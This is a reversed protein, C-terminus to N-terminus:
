RNKRRRRAAPQQSPAASSVRSAPSVPAPRRSEGANISPLRGRVNYVLSTIVGNLDELDVRKDSKRDPRQSEASKSM